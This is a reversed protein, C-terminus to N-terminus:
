MSAWKKESVVYQLLLSGVALTSSLILLPVIGWLTFIRELLINTLWEHDVFPYSPMSYSFPDTYPIGYHLIYEGARIHWGFDPDQVVIGRLIFFAFIGFFFLLARCRMTKNYLPSM